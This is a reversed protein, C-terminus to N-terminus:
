SKDTSDSIIPIIVRNSTQQKDAPMPPLEIPQPQALPRPEADRVVQREVPEDLKVSHGSPFKIQISRASRRVSVGHQQLSITKGWAFDPEVLVRQSDLVRVGVAHLVWDLPPLGLLHDAEGLAQPADGRYFQGFHGQQQHAKAQATLLSRLLEGSRKPPLAQGLLDNWWVWVGGQTEGYASDSAPVLSLGSSRWLGDKANLAKLLTERRAHPTSALILPAFARVDQQAHTPTYASVRYVRSLGECVLRDVQQFTIATTAVGQRGSWVFDSKRLVARVAHGQADRGDITCTVEPTLSAGGIIRVVVRRAPGDPLTTSVFHEGEGSVEDLLTIRDTASHHSDRDRTAYTSGGWLEDLAKQLQTQAKLLEDPLTEKLAQSLDHLAQLDRLLLAILDPSEVTSIDLGQAWAHGEGFMPLAIVGLQREDQYEPVGDQDADQRLWRSLFKVLVPYTRRLWTADQTYEAIRKVLHALFPPHLYGQRVNHTTPKYDISGDAAQVSVLNDILGQALRPAISAMLPAALATLYPDQGNWARITDSGDRKPSYGYSPTRLGVLLPGPFAGYPRFFAQVLRIAAGDLLADLSEDGTEFRPLAASALRISKFIADWDQTLWRQALASSESISARAACAWRMVHKAQLKLKVDQGIRPAASTMDSGGDEVIAIPALGPFLGLSLVKGVNALTVIALRPDDTSRAEAHGFLELRLRLLADDENRLEITGGICHSSFAVVRLTMHLDRLPQSEIQWFNPAAYVLQPPQYYTQAQVITHQDITILPVLSVAKVRGGYRTQLAIAPAEARGLVLEWVQDDTFDTPSLRADATLYANRPLHATTWRRMGNM